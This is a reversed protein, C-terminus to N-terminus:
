LLKDQKLRIDERYRTPSVGTYKKFALSFYNTDQYGVSLAIKGTKVNTSELLNKAKEIRSRVIYENCGEGTVKKFLRSFYTPTLYLMKAIDTVSLSESLRERIYSKAKEVLEHINEEEKHYIRSIFQRTYELTEWPEASMILTMYASIKGEENEGSNSAYAFYLACVLEFCCQRIYTHSLNYSQTMQAFTDFAHLIKETNGQNATMINKIEWFMEWFIQDKKVTQRDQIIERYNEKETEMLINADNYSIWLQSFGSVASGIVIKQQFSYEDALLNILEKIRIVVDEHSDDIFFAIVIKGDDDMFTIGTEHIDINGNCVNKISLKLFYEEEEAESRHLIPVLIAIQMMQSPMYNNEQFLYDLATQGVTRKHVLDCMIGELKMQEASGQVRRTLGQIKQEKKEREIDDIQKKIIEALLDEDVPKLLFDEVNMRLCQRAYEFEDYGTLVIIRIEPRIMNVKEILELGTMGTMQIDTILIHIQKEKVIELAECASSATYVEDVHLTDWPLVKQIGMRIMKEDDVVLVRFM